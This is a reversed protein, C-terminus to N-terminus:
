HGILHGCTRKTLKLTSFEERREGEIIESVTLYHATQQKIRGVGGRQLRRDELDDAINAYAFWPSTAKSSARGGRQETEQLDEAMETTAASTTSTSWEGKKAARGTRVALSPM